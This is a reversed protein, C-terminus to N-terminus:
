CLYKAMAIREDHCSAWLFDQIMQDHDTGCGPSLDTQSTELLDHIFRENGDKIRYCLAGHESM